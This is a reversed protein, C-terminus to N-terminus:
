ASEDPPDDSEPLAVNLVIALLATPLLGTGLLLNLTGPVHQLAEPVLQLGLGLSLSLAIIMMNRRNMPVTHLLNIGASVVMGFMVIVAGGLVSIPLSAIIGGFKPILGAGILFLAGISVAHRSMVGTMVVLGVNESYSTNPLAGFPGAIATGLGDAMIGGALERDTPARGAGGRTVGNIDGVTEIASVISMLCMGIIAGPLFELPFHFPNPLQFYGANRFEAFSVVGMAVAVLYGAILGILTAAATAFGRTFFKISYTVVIVVLALSWNQLSGFEADGRLPIGGAAYQIGIPLLALGISMVVVGTVLPPLFRRLRKMFAGLGFHFFGAALVGGLVAGIGFSEALPIMIPVFAFSTGQVIPLRSGVPGLGITQLLTAIGAFVMAMQIMYVLDAGALGAAGAILFPLTVNSSFMALIHQLGLPIAHRLPPMTDPDIYPSRDTTSHVTM